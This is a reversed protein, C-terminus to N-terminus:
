EDNIELGVFYTVGKTQGTFRAFKGVLLDVVYDDAILKINEVKFTAVFDEDHTGLDVDVFNSTDNERDHLRLKLEGSESLISLHPLENMSALRLINNLVDGALTFTVDPNDVKVERNILANDSDEILETPCAHYKMKIRGSSITVFKDGFELEPDKLTVINGLFQNLDYIGFKHDTIEELNASAMIIDGPALTKQVKGPELVIRSHINAFNKLVNITQESLKM